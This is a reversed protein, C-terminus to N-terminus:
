LLKKKSVGGLSKTAIVFSVSPTRVVGGDAVSPGQRCLCICVCFFVFVFVFAFSFISLCFLGYCLCIWEIAPPRWVLKSWLSCCKTRTEQLKLTQWFNVCFSINTLKYLHCLHKSIRQFLIFILLWRNECELACRLACVCNKRM